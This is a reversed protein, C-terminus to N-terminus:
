DSPIVGREVQQLMAWWTAQNSVDGHGAISRDGNLAWVRPLGKEKAYPIPPLEMPMVTIEKDTLGAPGYGGLAAYPSPAAPLGTAAIAPQGLDRKRRAALHFFSRLPRDQVSFTTMITGDVRELARRYGGPYGKGAVDEAFCWQSVAPQLLLVSSVRPPKPEDPPYCLASLMVIAGYSHGIMHVRIGDRAKLISRLLLGGGFAGVTAARDKMKLVTTLRLLHRPDLISLSFAAAPGSASAGRAFGFEGTTTRAPGGARIGKWAELLDETDLGACGEGLDGDARSYRRAAAALIEALRRAQADSLRDSQALAFFEDLAHPDVDPALAEVDRRGEAVERDMREGDGAAAFDPADEWPLVLATSPWFVGVLVSSRPNAAASGHRGLIEVYGKVFSEYRQSAAEWDNNWGHSFLFVDTYAKKGLKEILDRRSLPGTCNGQEDFPIIYWPATVGNGVDIM